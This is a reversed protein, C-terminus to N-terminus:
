IAFEGHQMVQTVSYYGAKVLDERFSDLQVRDHKQVIFSQRELHEPPLLFHLLTPCSSIIIGHSLNKIKYLTALRESIIDQHPSFVDYPLTERDPFLYIPCPNKGSLFFLLEQYVKDQQSQDQVIILIPRKNELALQGISHSLALEPFYNAHITGALNSNLFSNIYAM